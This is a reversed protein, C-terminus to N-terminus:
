DLFDELKINTKPYLDVGAKNALTKYEEIPFDKDFYESTLGDFQSRLQIFRIREKNTLGQIDEGKGTLKKGIEALIFRDM